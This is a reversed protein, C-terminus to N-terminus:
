CENIKKQETRVEAAFGAVLARSVHPMSTQVRTCEMSLKKNLVSILQELSLEFVIDPIMATSALRQSYLLLWHFEISNHVGFEVLGQSLRRL